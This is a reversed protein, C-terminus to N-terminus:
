GQFLTKIVLSKWRMARTSHQQSPKKPLGRATHFPQSPGTTEVVLWRIFRQPPLLPFDPMTALTNGGGVMEARHIKRAEPLM